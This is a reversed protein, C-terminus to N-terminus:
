RHGPARPTRGHGGISGGLDATLEIAADAAVELDREVPVRVFARRADLNPMQHGGFGRRELDRRLRRDIRKVVWERM